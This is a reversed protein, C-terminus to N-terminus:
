TKFATVSSLTVSVPANLFPGIVTCNDPIKFITNLFFKTKKLYLIKMKQQQLFIVLSSKLFINECKKNKLCFILKRKRYCIFFYCCCGCFIVRIFGIAFYILRKILLNKILIHHSTATLM